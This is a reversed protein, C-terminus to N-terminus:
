PATCTPYKKTDHTFARLSTGAKLPVTKAVKMSSTVDAWAHDFQKADTSFRMWANGTRTHFIVVAFTTAPPGVITCKLGVASQGGVTTPQLDTAVSRLHTEIGAAAGFFHPKDALGGAYLSFIGTKAHYSTQGSGSSIGMEPFSDFPEGPKGEKLPGVSLLTAGHDDKVTLPGPPPPETNRTCGSILGLALAVCGYTLLRKM